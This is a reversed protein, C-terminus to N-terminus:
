HVTVQKTQVTHASFYGLAGNSINTNPNAPSASRNDNSTVIRYTRFYSYNNEDICNMRISIKDGNVVNSTDSFLTRSVYKGDSLRDEILFPGPVVIGNIYETFRYYNGLGPPDQFNVVAYTRKNNFFSTRELTVSDLPVLAPMTSTANYLKGEATVSLSYTNGPKGALTHTIYIGPSTETLVDAAGTNDTIKVAAGSVAPFVNSNSFNVTKSLKVQYPGATNTIEGEIVLQPAASNLDVSIVKECSCVAAIVFIFLVIQNLKM